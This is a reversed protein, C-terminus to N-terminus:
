IRDRHSRSDKAHTDFVVLHVIRGEWHLAAGRIGEGTLRLDEGLGVTPLAQAEAQAVQDLFPWPDLRPPIHRRGDARQQWEIADLAYSRVLKPLSAALTEPHDFLELGRLRHGVAFLAGTQGPEPPFARVHDEVDQGYREFLDAMAETPSDVDLRRAKESIGEWVAYQDAHFGGGHSRSACVQALKDARAEAFQTRGAPRFQRERWAWRGAEVCTVPLRTKGPPALVSLNLVRNQKAGILEEGDLLLVPQKGHNVLLLEPVQGGESVETIEVEGAAIAEELLRYGPRADPAASGFLSYLTLGEFTRPRGLRLTGILEALRKM